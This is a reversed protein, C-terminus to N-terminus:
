CRCEHRDEASIRLTQPPTSPRDTLKWDPHFATFHLPVDPGLHDIVGLARRKLKAPLTTDRGSHAPHYDRVLSKNRAQPVRADRARSRAQRLLSEQLLGRHLRQPRYQRRGHASLVRDTTRAFHLGREGGGDQDGARPLGASRRCCIRSLDCSRQIHVSRVPLRQTAGSRCDGRALGFGSHSRFERAKSIDWNLCFKCTLNCGATGFSLVPTGPLFHNLPKKEIPDICFGSSRGYTTLVM